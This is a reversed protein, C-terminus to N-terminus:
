GGTITSERPGEVADLWSTGPTDGWWLHGRVDAWDSVAGPGDAVYNEFFNIAQEASTASIGKRMTVDLGQGSHVDVTLEALRLGLRRSRQTYRLYIALDEGVWCEDVVDSGLWALYRAVAISWGRMLARLDVIDPHPVQSM